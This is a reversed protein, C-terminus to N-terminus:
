QGHGSVRWYRGGNFMSERRKTTPAAETKDYSQLFINFAARDTFFQPIQAAERVGSVSGMAQRGGNGTVFLLTGTYFASRDQPSDIPGQHMGRSHLHTKWFLLRIAAVPLIAFSRM